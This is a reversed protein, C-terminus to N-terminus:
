TARVSSSEHNVKAKSQVNTLHIGIYRKHYGVYHSSLSLWIDSYFNTENVRINELLIFIFLWLQIAIDFIM